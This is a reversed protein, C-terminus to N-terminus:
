VPTITRALPKFYSSYNFYFILGVLSPVDLFRPYENFIETLTPSEKSIWMRRGTYTKEMASKISPINETTPRLRKMLTVWESTVSTSSEGQDESAQGAVCGVKRKSYRRQCAEIKRRINRLRM